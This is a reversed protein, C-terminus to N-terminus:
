SLKFLKGCVWSIAVRASTARMKSLTEDQKTVYSWVTLSILFICLAFHMWDFTAKYSAAEVTAAQATASTKELDRDKLWTDGSTLLHSVIGLAGGGLPGVLHTLLGLLM